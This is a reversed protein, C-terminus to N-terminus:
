MHKPQSTLDMYNKLTINEPIELKDKGLDIVIKANELLNQKSSTNIKINISEDALQGEDYSDKNQTEFDDIQSEQKEKFTM